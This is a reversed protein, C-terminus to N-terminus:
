DFYTLGTNIQKEILQMLQQSTRGESLEPLDDFAYFRATHTEDSGRLEGSEYDCLIVIKYFHYELPPFGHGNTDVVALLRKRKVKLGTEEWVEKEAMEGPSQNIDAFGGPLSWKGDAKERALLVQYDRLVVARIDVKPTQFGTEHTFLNRIKEIPADAIQEM